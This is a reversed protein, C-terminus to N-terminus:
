LILTHRGRGYQVFCTNYNQLVSNLFYDIIHYSVKSFKGHTIVYIEKQLFLFVLWSYNAAIRLKIEFKYLQFVGFNLITSKYKNLSILM